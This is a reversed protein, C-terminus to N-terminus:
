EAPTRAKVFAAILRAFEDFDGRERALYDHVVAPDIAAYVHVLRNRFAAMRELRAAFERPLIAQEGLIRFVDRHEGPRPLGLAVIVHHGIDLCIEISVQLMREAAGVRIPDTVFVDRPEAALRALVKQRERLQALKACVVEKRIM